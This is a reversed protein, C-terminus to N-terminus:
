YKTAQLINQAPFFKIYKCGHISFLFPEHKKRYKIRNTSEWKSYTCIVQKGKCVLKCDHENYKTCEWMSVFLITPSSLPTKIVFTSSYICLHMSKSKNWIVNNQIENITKINTRSSQM